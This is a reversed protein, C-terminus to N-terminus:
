PSFITATAAGPVSVPSMPRTMSALPWTTMGPPDLGMGMDGCGDHAERAHLGGWRLLDGTRGQEAASGRQDIEGDLTRAVVDEVGQLLAMPAPLPLSVGIVRIVNHQEWVDGARGHCWTLVPMASPKGLKLIKVVLMRGNFRM